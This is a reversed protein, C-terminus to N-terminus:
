HRAFKLILFIHGKSRLQASFSSSCTFGLIKYLIPFKIATRLDVDQDFVISFVPLSTYVTVYGLMLMGNYVPITTFYFM